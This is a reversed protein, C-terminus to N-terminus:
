RLHNNSQSGCGHCPQWSDLATAIIERGFWLWGFESDMDLVGLKLHSKLNFANYIGVRIRVRCFRAGIKFDSARVAVSSLVRSENRCCFASGLSVAKRFVAYCVGISQQHSAKDDGEIQPVNGQALKGAFGGGAAPLFALIHGGAVMTNRLVALRPGLRLTQPDVQDRRTGKIPSIHDRIISSNQAM